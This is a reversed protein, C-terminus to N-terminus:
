LQGKQPTTCQPIHGIQRELNSIEGLLRNAAEADGYALQIDIDKRLAHIQREIDQKEKIGTSTSM